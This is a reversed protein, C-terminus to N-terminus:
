MGADPPQQEGPMGADIAQQPAREARFRVSAIRVGEFSLLSLEANICAPGPRIFLPFRMEAGYWYGRNLILIDEERGTPPFSDWIVFSVQRGTACEAVSDVNVHVGSILRKDLRLGDGLAGVLLRGSLMEGDYQVNQVELVARPGKSVGDSEAGAVPSSDRTGALLSSTCAAMLLLVAPAAKIMKVSM